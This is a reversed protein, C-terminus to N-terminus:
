KVVPILVKQGERLKKPNLGPNAAEVHAMTTKLGKGKRYELLIASLTQGSEVVHVFNESPLEVAPKAPKVPKGSAEAGAEGAADGAGGAHAASPREREHHVVPSPIAPAPVPPTDAIKKLAEYIRKSDDARTKDVAEVKAVLAKLQDQTVLDKSLTANAQRLTSIEGQARALKAEADALRHRLVEIGDLLTQHNEVTQRLILFDQADVEAAYVPLAPPIVVVSAAFLSALVRKMARLSPIGTGSALLDLGWGAFKRWESRRV